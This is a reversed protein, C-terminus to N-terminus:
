AIPKRALCAHIDLSRMTGMFYNGIARRFGGATRRRGPNLLARKAGGRRWPM